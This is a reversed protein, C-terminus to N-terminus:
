HKICKYDISEICDPQQESSEWVKSIAKDGMGFQYTLSPTNYRNKTLPKKSIEQGIEHPLVYELYNRM